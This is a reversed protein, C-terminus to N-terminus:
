YGFYADIGDAIGQAMKKQMSARQMKRDEAPNTMFGMEILTVPIKSWNTGTLDDRKFLGRNQIGTKKCYAKLIANSLRKSASSLNKVYPNSASPYLMSAGKVSSSGSADAHIRIYIDSGSKNAKQAREKNSINVQNSNRIMCVEYGRKELEKKLKKAVALTLKYEPVGTAVGTTGGAVKAKRVSSGPGVPETATDAKAQHGADIAIKKKGSSKTKKLSAATVKSVPEMASLKVAAAARFEYTLIGGCALAFALPVLVAALLIGRGWFPRKKRCQM